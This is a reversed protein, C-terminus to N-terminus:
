LGASKLLATIEKKTLYRWQGEALRGLLLNGVRLRRLHAVHHGVAKVMRRIQRNRGEKLTIRFRRPGMRRVEAPRTKRGKLHIGEAMRRLAKDSIPKNVVVDYEKEHDFSPHSLRHHLRGDNTLLLLGTSNKDLRGVPYLRESIDVLDLVIQDGPQRCSTVYGAPKNLIVYRLEVDARVINEDVMVVDIEPDIKTGLVKVVEGNVRVRGEQILAEGKRRSCVGALSLFKQLRVTDPTQHKTNPEHIETPGHAWFLHRFHLIGLITSDSPETMYTESDRIWGTFPRRAYLIWYGSDLIWCGPYDTPRNTGGLRSQGATCTM